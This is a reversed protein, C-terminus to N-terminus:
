GCAPRRRPERWAGARRACKLAAGHLQQFEDGVIGVDVEHPPAVERQDQRDEGGDRRESQDPDPAEVEADIKDTALHHPGIKGLGDVNLIQAAPDGREVETFGTDLLQAVGAGILHPKRALGANFAADPIGYGLQGSAAMVRLPKLGGGGTVEERLRTIADTM